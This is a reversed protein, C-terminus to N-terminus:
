TFGQDLACLGYGTKKRPFINEQPFFKNAFLGPIFTLSCKTKPRSKNGTDQLQDRKALLAM